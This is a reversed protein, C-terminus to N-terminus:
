KVELNAGSVLKDILLPFRYETRDTRRQQIPHRFRSAAVLAEDQPDCVSLERRRPRIVPAPLFPTRYVCGDACFQFVDQPSLFLEPGNNDV